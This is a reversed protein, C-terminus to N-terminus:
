SVQGAQGNGNSGLAAKGKDYNSVAYQAIGIVWKAYKNEPTPFTRLGHGILGWMFAGELLNSISIHSFM